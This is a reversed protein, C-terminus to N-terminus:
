ESRPRRGDLTVTQLDSITGVRQVALSAVAWDQSALGVSKFVTWGTHELGDVLDGINELHEGTITGAAIAQIIDGAEALAAEKQDVAIVSAHELLPPSLECMEPTYAGIANIHVRDGIDDPEFLPTTSTTACCVVDAGRLASPIDDMVGITLSPWRAGVRTALAEAKTRTRSVLRVEEIGRVSCVGAIQDASQGGTGIMTLVRADVRALRDTAVGSAAGTRLATVASGDILAGPEGTNEDFWVVVSHLIPLHRQANTPRISTAKVVTAQSPKIQAMMALASGDGLVLRPPQSVHGESVAIFAERVALIADSMPVLRRFDESTIVIV